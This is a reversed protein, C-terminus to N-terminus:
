VLDYNYERMMSTPLPYVPKGKDTQPCFRTRATDEVISTSDMEYKTTNDLM